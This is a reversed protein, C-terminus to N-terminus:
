IYSVNYFVFINGFISPGSVLNKLKPVFSLAFHQSIQSSFFHKARHLFYSIILHEVYTSVYASTDYNVRTNYLYQFRSCLKPSHDRPYSPSFIVRISNIEVKTSHVQQFLQFVSAKTPRHCSSDSAQRPCSNSTIGGCAHRITAILPASIDPEEITSNVVVNLSCTILYIHM